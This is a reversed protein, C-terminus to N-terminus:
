YPPWFASSAAIPKMAARLWVTQGTSTGAELGGSRQSSRVLNDGELTLFAHPKIKVKLFLDGGPGGM